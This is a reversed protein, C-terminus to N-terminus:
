GATMAVGPECGAQVALLNLLRQDVDGGGEDLKLFGAVVRVVVTSEAKGPSFRARDRRSPLILCKPIPALHAAAQRGVSEQSAKEGVPLHM